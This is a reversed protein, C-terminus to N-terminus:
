LLHRACPAALDSPLIQEEPIHRYEVEDDSEDDDEGQFVISCLETRKWVSITDNVHLWNKLKARLICHFESALRQQFVPGSSRGWPAQDMSPTDGYLEGVHIVTDGKFHELCAAGMSESNDDNKTSEEMVDEDPYCLFLVRNLLKKQNLVEPGGRHIVFGDDFTKSNQEPGRKRKKKKSSKSDGAKEGDTIKGGDGLSFDYAMVNVGCKKMMRSWYANSGCGIEAIGNKDGFYQLIKMCREDPTAWAYKNVLDEGLDAQQTWVEARTSPDTQTNSFFNKRLKTPLSQLFTNQAKLLPNKIPPQKNNNNPNRNSPNAATGSKNAAQNKNAKKNKPM